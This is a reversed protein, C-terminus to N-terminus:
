FGHGLGAPDADTPNHAILHSVLEIEGELVHALLAELVDRAL